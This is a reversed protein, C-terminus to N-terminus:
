VCIWNYVWGSCRSQRGINGDWKREVVCASHSRHVKPLTLIEM